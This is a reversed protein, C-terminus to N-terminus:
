NKIIKITTLNKNEDVVRIFYVAPKLGEFSIETNKDKIFGQKILNGNFGYLMFNMNEYKEAEVSLTVFSRTPNPYATINYGPMDLEDVSVVTLLPQHFGQTLTVEDVKYTEIVTEGISWSISRDGEEHHNGSTSIVQQASVTSFLFILTFLALLAKSIVAKNKTKGKFATFKLLLQLSQKM